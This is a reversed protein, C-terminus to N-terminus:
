DEDGPASFDILHRGVGILVGSALGVLHAGHAIPVREIPVVLTFTLYMGIFLISGSSLGLGGGPEYIGKMWIYGFLALDVGSLGLFNPNRSWIYQGLNSVVATIVILAALRVTGKRLEIMGALQYFMLLNFVLHLPSGHMLAPTVLRWVEGRRLDSLLDSAIYYDNAAVGFPANDPDVEEIPIAEYSAILLPRVMSRAQGFNTLIAVALCVGMMLFTLPCRRLTPPSWLARVDHSQREHERRARERERRLARARGSHGSFRPDNPAELFSKLETRAEPVRDERHIWVAWGEPGPDLRSTIGLTQLYDALRRAGVEDPITGIQRM